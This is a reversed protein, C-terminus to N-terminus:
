ALADEIMTQIQDRTIRGSLSAVSRGDRVVVLTPVSMVGFRAAVGAHAAIDCSAFEMRDAYRAAMEAFLPQVTRCQACWASGFDVCIPKGSRIVAEDLNGDTLRILSASM